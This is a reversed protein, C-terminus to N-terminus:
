FSIEIVGHALLKLNANRKDILKLIKWLTNKDIPESRGIITIYKRKWFERNESKLTIDLKEDIKLLEEFLETENM